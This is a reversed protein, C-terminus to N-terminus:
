TMVWESNRKLYKDMFLGIDTLVFRIVFFSFFEAAGRISLELGVQTTSTAKLGPDEVQRAISDLVQVADFLRALSAMYNAHQTLIHPMGTPTPPPHRQAKYSRSTSPASNGTMPVSAFTLDAASEKDRRGMAPTLVANSSKSRLKRSWSSAFSKVSSNSSKTAPAEPEEGAPSHKMAVMSGSFGVDSGLKKLLALRVTDVIMDFQQLEELVADADLTDVKSLRLLAATLVDCQGIKDDLAKVKVGKVRWIDRPIFLKTSIYGGKPHALTQYLCRMLWFPRLLFSEPCPELPLPDGRAADPSRPMRPSLPDAIPEFIYLGGVANNSLPNPSSSAVAPTSISQGRLGSHHQFVGSNPTPPADNTDSTALSLNRPRLNSSSTNKRVPPPMRRQDGTAPSPDEEGATSNSLMQLLGPTGPSNTSDTSHVSALPTLPLTTVSTNTGSALHALDSPQTQPPPIELLPPQHGQTKQSLSPRRVFTEIKLQKAGHGSMRRDRLPVHKDTPPPAPLPTTQNEALIEAEHVPLTDDEPKRYDDHFGSGQPIEPSEILTSLTTANTAATISSEWTRGSSRASFGSSDSQRPLSSMAGPRQKDEFILGDKMMMDLIEEEEEAEEDMYERTLYNYRADTALSEQSLQSTLVREDHSDSSFSAEQSVLGAESPRPTVESPLEDDYAAEVAANMAADLDAEISLALHHGHHLEMSSPRSSTESMLEDKTDLWSISESSIRKEPHGSLANPPRLAAIPTPQEDTDVPSLPRRPSLPSPMYQADMPVNLTQLPPVMHRSPPPQQEIYQGGGFFQPLLSEQRPPIVVLNAPLPEEDSELLISPYDLPPETPSLQDEGDLYGTTAPAEPLEKDTMLHEFSHDLDYLEAIRTSYTSRIAALKKRDDTDSSRLMVQELIECAEVYAEIAGQINQANDMQVAENAKSLAQSLMNKQTPSRNGRGRTHESRTSSMSSGATSDKSENM